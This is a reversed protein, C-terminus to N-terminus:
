KGGKRLEEISIKQMVEWFSKKFSKKEADYYRKWIKTTEQSRQKINQCIDVFEQFMPDKKFEEITIPPKGEAKRKKSLIVSKVNLRLHLETLRHLEPYYMSILRMISNFTTKKLESLIREENLTTRYVVKGKEIAKEVVKADQLDKLHKSLTSRSFGTEKLLETFTLSKDFLTLFIERRNDQREWAPM